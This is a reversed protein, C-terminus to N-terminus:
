RLHRIFMILVEAAVERKQEMCQHCCHVAGLLKDILM